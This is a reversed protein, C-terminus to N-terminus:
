FFVKQRLKQTETFDIIWKNIIMRMQNSLRLLVCKELHTKIIVSEFCTMKNKINLVHIDLCKQKMILKGLYCQIYINVKDQIRSQFILFFRYM